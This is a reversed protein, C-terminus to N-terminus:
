TWEAQWQYHTWFSKHPNILIACFIVQIHLHFHSRLRRWSPCSLHRTFPMAIPPGSFPTAYIYFPLVIHPFPLSRSLKYIMLPSVIINLSKSHCTGTIRWYCPSSLHHCSFSSGAKSPPLLVSGSGDSKEPLSACIWFAFLCARGRGWNVCILQAAALGSAAPPPLSPRFLGCCVNAKFNVCCCAVPLVRFRRKRRLAVM